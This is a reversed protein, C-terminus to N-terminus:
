SVLEGGEENEDSIDDIYDPDDQVLVMDEKDHSQMHVSLSEKSKYRKGCLECGHPKAGSHTLYHKSLISYKKFSKVCVKCQYPRKDSHIPMHKKVCQKTRFAKGCIECNYAKVDTHVNIHDKLDRNSSFGKGCLDCKYKKYDDEHRKLHAKLYRPFEFQKGCAGCVLDEKTPLELHSKNHNQMSKEDYFVNNCIKCTRPQHAQAIHDKLNFYYTKTACYECYGAQESDIGQETPGDGIDEETHLLLHQKVAQKSSFAENCFKCPFSRVTEHMVRTHRRLSTCTAFCGDCIKCKFKKEGTHVVKHDSLTSSTKFSKGCETCMFPRDDNHVRQHLRTERHSTFSRECNPCQFPKSSMHKRVHGVFQYRNKVFQNCVLCHHIDSHIMKHIKLENENIFLVSCQECAFKENEDFKENEHKILIEQFTSNEAKDDNTASYSSDSKASEM